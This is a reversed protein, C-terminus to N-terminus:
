VHRLMSCQVNFAEMFKNPSWVGEVLRLQRMDCASFDMSLIAGFGLVLPTAIQM